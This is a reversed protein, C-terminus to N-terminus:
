KKTADVLPRTELNRLFKERAQHVDLNTRSGGLRHMGRNTQRNQQYKNSNIEETRAISANRTRNAPDPKIVTFGNDTQSSIKKCSSSCPQVTSVPPKRRTSTM